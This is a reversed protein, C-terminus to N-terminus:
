HALLGADVSLAHGLIFSAQNSCLFLAAKAVEEPDGLRGLLSLRSTVEDRDRGRRAITADLLPTRIGGPSIVNVRIGHEAAELAATRSIGVVGHKSATYAAQRANGRFGATSGINVIAGGGGQAILQRLEYKLCLFTSRLNVAIIQDFLEEELDVLHTTEREIGASNVACDLRGFAEVTKEVLEQLAAADSVDTYFYRARAGSATIEAEVTRGREDDLDAVVVDAGATGFALATARGMGSAGGTVLAVKGAFSPYDHM